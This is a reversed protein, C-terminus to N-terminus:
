LEPFRVFDPADWDKRMPHGQDWDDPLLFRKLNGHNKVNIGYLEWIEREYWNAGPWIEQVSNIEAGDRALIVKFDLRLKKSISAMSYVVEFHEGTDTAGLNCLFDFKLNEDDRLARAVELLQGPKVEYMPDFRGTDLPTIMVPYSRSIYEKLEAVTM